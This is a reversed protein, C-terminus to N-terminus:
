THSGLLCPQPSGIFGGEWREEMYYWHDIQLQPLFAAEIQVPKGTRSLPFHNLGATTQGAGLVSHTFLGRSVHVKLFGRM